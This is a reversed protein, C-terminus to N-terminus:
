GDYRFVEIDIPKIKGQGNILTFRGDLLLRNHKIKANDLAQLLVAQNEAVRDIRKNYDTKQGYEAILSSATMSEYGLLDYVNRCITSKGVGHIGGVFVMHSAVVPVTSSNELLHGMDEDDLYSFSQPPAKIGSLASLELPKSLEYVRGLSFASASRKGSFYERFFQRTIGSGYATAGWVQTPSGNLNSRILTLHLDM